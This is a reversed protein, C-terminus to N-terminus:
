SLRNGGRGMCNHTVPNIKGCALALQEFLEECEITPSEYPERPDSIDSMESRVLTTDDSRSM